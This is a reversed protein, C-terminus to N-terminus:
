VRERCSARGIKGVRGEASGKPSKVEFVIKFLERWETEAVHQVSFIRKLENANDDQMLRVPLLGEKAVQESANVKSRLRPAEGYGANLVRCVLQAPTLDDPVSEGLRREVREHLEAYQASYPNETLLSEVSRYSNRWGRHRAIHRLAISIDERRREDDKIYHDALAGRVRWEEFPATLSEPEVIPYGYYELLGDLRALRANRRRRMRRTRRAIGSQKKRTIAEKNKQPDVGGDHIISQMNLIRVPMDADDVEIAALGVSNLGVDIGLRYRRQKM